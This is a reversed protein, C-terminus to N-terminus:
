VLWNKPTRITSVGKFADSNLKWIIRQHHGNLM